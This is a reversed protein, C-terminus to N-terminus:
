RLPFRIVKPSAPNCLDYQPGNAGFVALQIKQGPKVNRGIVLRNVANWGGIVSGGSQAAARPLEGPKARSVTAVGALEGSAPDAKLQALRAQGDKVALADAQPDDIPYAQGAEDVGRLHHLWAAVALALRGITAGDRLRERLPDLLRQPLKLTGDMAIQRTRHALAPNAFRALLQGGYAAPDLGPLPPLTPAIEDRMLAQLHRCLLPEAVAQDVTAWGAVVGLYAICSHTGNVMRLKLREWPAADAVFRAGAPTWDPRGAAFDDEVAWDFYPEALVPWADHLGLAAAIGARDADTSRPVIRDVMTCPFRCGADIWGALAPDLAEALALVAGRLVRGNAPLNDLSLLTLPGGGAARRQALGGVIVGIASRPALPRALDHAIDAHDPRLRGSAPDACYGQETVTLSVIRTAPAAIAALVAAPDEPAVLLQRVAGMVQLRQRPRGTADADRLALTYLGGQPALADRTGPQRLSVGVIGWRLDGAAIAAETAPVLHARMFGGIGLHVIGPQLAQRDFTPRAVEAPLRDLTAPSLRAHRDSVPPHPPPPTTM